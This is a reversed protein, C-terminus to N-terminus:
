GALLLAALLRVCGSPHTHAMQRLLQRVAVDEPQSQNRMVSGAMIGSYPEGHWESVSTAAEQTPVGEVPHTSQM